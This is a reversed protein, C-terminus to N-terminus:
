KWEGRKRGLKNKLMNLFRGSKTIRHKPGGTTLDEMTTGLIHSIDEGIVEAGVEDLEPTRPVPTESTIPTVDQTGVAHGKAQLNDAIIKAHDMKPATVM